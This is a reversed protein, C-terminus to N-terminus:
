KRCASGQQAYAEFSPPPFLALFPKLRRRKSTTSTQSAIKPWREQECRLNFASSAMFVPAGDLNSAISSPYADLFRNAFTPPAPNARLSTSKTRAQM